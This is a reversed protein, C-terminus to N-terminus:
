LDKSKKMEANLMEFADLMRKENQRAADLDGKLVGNQRRLSKVDAQAERIEECLKTVDTRKRCENELEARVKALEADKAELAKRLEAQGKEAESLSVSKRKLSVECNELRRKWIIVDREAMASTQPEIRESWAYVNRMATELLTMIETAQERVTPEAPIEGVVNATAATSM